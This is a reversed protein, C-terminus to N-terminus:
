GDAKKMQEDRDHARNQQVDKVGGVSWSAVFVHHDDRNRQQQTEENCHRTDYRAFAVRPTVIPATGAVVTGNTQEHRGQHKTIADIVRVIRDFGVGVWHAVGITKQPRRFVTTGNHQAQQDRPKGDHPNGQSGRLSCTPDNLGCSAVRDIRVGFLVSFFFLALFLFSLFSVFLFFVGILNFPPVVVAVHRRHFLTTTRRGRRRANTDHFNVVTRGHLVRPLVVLVLVVFVDLVSQVFLNPQKMKDQGHTRQVHSHNQRLPPPVGTSGGFFVFGVLGRRQPHIRYTPPHRVRNKSPNAHCRQTAWSTIKPIRM